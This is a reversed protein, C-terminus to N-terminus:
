LKYAVYSGVTQGDEMIVSSVTFGNKVWLMHSSINGVRIIM